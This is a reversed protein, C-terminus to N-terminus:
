TGRREAVDGSGQPRWLAVVLAAGGVAGLVVGWWTPHEVQLAITALPTVAVATAVVLIRFGQAGTYAACAAWFVLLLAVLALTTWTDSVIPQEPEDVVSLGVVPAEGDPLGASFASSFAASLLGSIALLGTLSALGAAAVVGATVGSVVRTPLLWGAATVGVAFVVLGLAAPWLHEDGDVGVVDDFAQAAVVFLGLVGSVVFPSRWTVLWGVQSLLLVALGAVYASAAHDDLAVGVMLGVAAAGFAGPWAVADSTPAAGASVARRHAVVAIGLLGATAVLGVVYNSWDLAPRLRSYYTSLVVATALLAVGLAVLPRQLDPATRTM